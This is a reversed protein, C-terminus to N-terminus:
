IVRTYVDSIYISLKDRPLQMEIHSVDQVKALTLPITDIASFSCVRVCSSAPENHFQNEGAVRIEFVTFKLVSSDEYKSIIDFPHGLGKRVIILRIYGPDLCLFTAAM